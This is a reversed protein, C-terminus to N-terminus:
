TGEPGHAPASPAAADAPASSAAAADAPADLDVEIVQTEGDRIWVERDVDHFFQNRLKLWHRGPPLAVRRASPTTLVHQGDIYVEAWPEVVFRLHGARQPVVPAGAEATFRDVDGSLRGAAAQIAGGSGLIAACLLANVLWVSRAISRDGGSRRTRNPTSAALIEEAEDDTVVGLERLYMVVRANHNIPVRSSLFDMLDDILAQTTPYRNAPMKEMCRAMIRELSRPVEPNLKRPGTYRDLRIKQMVTRSDDEVFPKRGTSM